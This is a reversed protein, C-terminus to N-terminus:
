GTAYLFDAQRHTEVRGPFVRSGVRDGLALPARRGSSSIASCASPASGASPRAKQKLGKGDRFRALRM